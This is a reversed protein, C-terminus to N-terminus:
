LLKEPNLFQQRNQSKTQKKVLYIMHTQARDAKSNKMNLKKNKEGLTHIM